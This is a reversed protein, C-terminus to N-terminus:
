RRISKMYDKPTMGTFKKFATLFPTRSRFGALESLANITYKAYQPDAALRKFEAIRYAAIYDYYSCNLFQTFLQSLSHTSCGIAKALDPMSFDPEVYPKKEYMYRELVDALREGEDKAMRSKQYKGPKPLLRQWFYEKKYLRCYLLYGCLLLLLLLAFAMSLAGYTYPVAVAMAVNMEPMGVAEIRLTYNGAPLSRYFIHRDHTATHWQSDYGELRYKFSIGKINGFVLPCFALSLDSQHRSLRIQGDYVCASVEADTYWHDTQIASLVIPIHEYQRRALDRLEAYVLGGNTAAWFRNATLLSSHSQFQLNPLGDIYGFRRISDRNGMFLGEDTAFIHAGGLRHVFLFAPNREAVALQLSDMRAEDMDYVLPSGHQPLLLMRDAGAPVISRLLYPRRFMDSLSQVTLRGGDPQYLCLGGRTSVWGIGRSDFGMCFVENDPLQSNTETFLQLVGASKDYRALGASTCIWLNGSHDDTLQYVNSGALVSFAHGNTECLTQVDYCRLGSGITGVMYVNGMRAVQTVIGGGPAHQVSKGGRVACLGNRTGLLVDQGDLLFSRVRYQRSDIVGPVAYTRFVNRNYCTYDLGFFQYGLWDIGQRDRYVTWVSEFRSAVTGAGGRCTYHRSVSDSGLTIEYAGQMGTAALLHGSSDAFLDNIDAGAFMYPLFVGSKADYLLLGDGGKTGVFVRGDSATAVSSLARRDKAGYLPTYAVEKGRAADMCTLGRRTAAWLRKHKGHRGIAMGVVHRDAHRSRQPFAMRALRGGRLSFLGDVTGIYVTGDHDAAMCTVEVNMEDEFIRTMQLTRRDLRWLGVKNSVILGDGRTEVIGSVWCKESRGDLPFAINVVNSGDFRDVGVMTGIYVYGRSDRFVRQVSGGSLGEETTLREMAASQGKAPLVSLVLLFISIYRTMNAKILFNMNM